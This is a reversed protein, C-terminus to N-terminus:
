PANVLLLHGNHIRYERDRDNRADGFYCTGDRTVRMELLSARLGGPAAPSTAPRLWYSVFQLSAVRRTVIRSVVYCSGEQLGQATVLSRVRQGIEFKCGM